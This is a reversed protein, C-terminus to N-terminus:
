RTVMTKSLNGRTMTSAAVSPVYLGADSARAQEGLNVDVDYTSGRAPIGAYLEGVIGHAVVHLEDQPHSSREGGLKDERPHGRVKVVLILTTPLPITSWTLFHTLNNEM